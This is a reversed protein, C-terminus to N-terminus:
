FINYIISRMNQGEKFTILINNTDKGNETSLIKVIQEVGMNKNLEYIGTKLGTPKILKVYLKYFFESKILDQEKLNKALTSFSQNETVEFEVIISDKSTASLNYKYTLCCVIIVVALFAIIIKQFDVLKKM